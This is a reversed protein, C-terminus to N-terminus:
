MRSLRTQLSLVIRQWSPLRQRSARVSLAMAPDNTIVGNVGRDILGCMVDPDDITWAHVERGAARAAELLGDTVLATRVSLVDVELLAVDGVAASIIAGTRLRPNRSHAAEVAQGDLSTVFCDTEFKSDGILDAVTRALQERDTATPKLEINLKIKGRAADIAEKLTAIREGAFARDFRSGIDIGRIQELTMEGPRRSDGALRLFDEDHLLVPVGDATLHVDIEAYDCGFEIASRLASLSNEPAARSAGRHATIL